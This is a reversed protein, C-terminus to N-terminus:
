LAYITHGVGGVVRAVSVDYIKVNIGADDIVAILPLSGAPPANGVGSTFRVSPITYSGVLILGSKLRYKPVFQTM